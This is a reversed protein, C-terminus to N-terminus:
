TRRAVLRRRARALLFVGPVDLVAEKPDVRDPAFPSCVFFLGLLALNQIFTFGMALQTGLHFLVLGVGWARHLRPRFAILISATELYMTGNYLLWGPVPNAVMWDGLLTVQNTRVLRDALILSFGDIEFGSIASTGLARVSFYLKWLGTLTYFFLVILQVTWIVSLTRHRADADSRRFGRATPLLVMLLAAWLWGHFNHNIKGFAMTVALYQALFVVYAIRFTRVLPFSLAALSAILYGAVVFTVGASPDNREIWGAPWLPELVTLERLRPWSGMSMVMWVFSIGYFARIVVISRDFSTKQREITTAIGARPASRLHRLLFATLRGAANM